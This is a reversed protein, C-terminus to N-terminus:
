KRCRVKTWSQGRYVVTESYGRVQSEKGCYHKQM